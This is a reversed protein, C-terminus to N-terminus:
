LQSSPITKQSPAGLLNMCIRVHIFGGLVYITFALSDIEPELEENETKQQQVFDESRLRNGGRVTGALPSIHNKYWSSFMMEFPSLESSSVTVWFTGELHVFMDWRTFCFMMNWLAKTLSINTALLTVVHDYDYMNVEKIYMNYLKNITSM